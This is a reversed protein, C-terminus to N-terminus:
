RGQGEGRYKRSTEGKEDRGWYSSDWETHDGYVAGGMDDTGWLSSWWYISEGMRNRGRM